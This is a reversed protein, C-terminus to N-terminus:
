YAEFTNIAGGYVYGDLPVIVGGFGDDFTAEAEYYDEEWAGVFVTEGPFAVGPLVNGSFFLAGAPRMRFDYLAMPPGILDTQNDVEVDGVPVYYGGGGSGGCGALLTATLALSLVLSARLSSRAPTSRTPTSPTSTSRNLNSCNM